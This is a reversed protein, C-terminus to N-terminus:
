NFGSRGLTWGTDTSPDQDRACPRAQAAAGNPEAWHGGGGSEECPTRVVPRAGPLGRAQVMQLM